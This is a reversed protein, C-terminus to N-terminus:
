VRYETQLAVLRTRSGHNFTGHLHPFFVRWQVDGDAALPSQAAALVEDYSPFELFFLRVQSEHAVLADRCLPSCGHPAARRRRAVGMETLEM